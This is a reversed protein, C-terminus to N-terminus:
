SGAQEYGSTGTEWNCGNGDWHCTEHGVSGICRHGHEDVSSCTLVSCLTGYLGEMIGTKVGQIAYWEPAYRPSGDTHTGYKEANPRDINAGSLEFDVARKVLQRVALDTLALLTIENPEYGKALLEATLDLTKDTSTM